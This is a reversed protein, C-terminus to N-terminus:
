QQQSSVFDWSSWQELQLSYGPIQRFIHRFVNFVMYISGFIRLNLIWFRDVWWWLDAGLYRDIVPLQGSALKFRTTVPKELTRRRVLRLWVSAILFASSPSKNLCGILFLPMISQVVTQSNSILNTLKQQDYARHLRHSLFKPLMYSVLKM